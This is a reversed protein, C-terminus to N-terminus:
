TASQLRWGPFAANPTRIDLTLLIRRCMKGNEQPVCLLAYSNRTATWIQLPFMPKQTTLPFNPRAGRRYSTCICTLYKLDLLSYHRGPHMGRTNRHVDLSRRLRTSAPSCTQPPMPSSVSKRVPCSSRTGPLSPPSQHSRWWILNPGYLVDPFNALLSRRSCLRCLQWDVQRVSARGLYPDTAM